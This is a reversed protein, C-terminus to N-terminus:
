VEEPESAGKFDGMDVDELDERWPSDSPADDAPLPEPNPASDDDSSPDDLEEPEFDDDSPVDPAGKGENAEEADEEEDILDSLSLRPQKAPRLSAEIAQYLAFDDPEKRKRGSRRAPADAVESAKNEM